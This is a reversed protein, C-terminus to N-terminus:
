LKGQIILRKRIKYDQMKNVLASYPCDAGIDYVSHDICYRAMDRLERTTDVIWFPNDKFHEVSGFLKRRFYRPLTVKRGNPLTVSLDPMFRRYYSLADNATRALSAMDSFDLFPAFKTKQRFKNVDIRSKIYRGERSNFWNKGIGQSYVIFPRQIGEHTETDYKLVYKTVYHIGSYEAVGVDVNGRKWCDRIMKNAQLWNRNYVKELEDFGFLLIHCHPRDFQDGYEGCGFYSFNTNYLKYRDKLRKIFGSLDSRVLTPANDGYVLNENNYTLTVFFPMSDYSLSHLQLRISWEDRRASLCLLCKGCPVVLGSKLQVPNLCKM